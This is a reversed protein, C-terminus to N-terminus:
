NSHKYSFPVELGLINLMDQKNEGSVKRSSIIEEEIDQYKDLHREKIDTLIKSAIKVHM